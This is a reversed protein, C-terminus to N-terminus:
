SIGPIKKIIWMVGKYFFIGTELLVVFGIVAFLAVMPFVPSLSSIMGQINVISNLLDQSVSVDPLARFPILITDVLDKLITLIFTTIM